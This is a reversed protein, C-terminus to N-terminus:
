GDSLLRAMEYDRSFFFFLLKVQSSDCVIDGYGESAIIKNDNKRAAIVDNFHCHQANALTGLSTSVKLSKREKDNVNILNSGPPSCMEKARRCFKVVVVVFFISSFLFYLRSVTDSNISLHINLFQFSIKFFYNQHSIELSDQLNM